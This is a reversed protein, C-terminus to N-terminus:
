KSGNRSEQGRVAEASLLTPKPTQITRMPVVNCVEVVPLIWIITKRSMEPTPM